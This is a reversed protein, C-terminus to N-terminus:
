NGVEIASRQRLDSALKIVYEFAEDGPTDLVQLIVPEFVGRQPFTHPQSSLLINLEMVIEYPDDSVGSDILQQIMDEFWESTAELISACDTPYISM